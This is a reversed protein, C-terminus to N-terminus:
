VQVRDWRRDLWEIWHEVPVSSTGALHSQCGINATLIREPKPALLADLKRDRLQGALVPQLLSYTGASGCCLQSDAFPLLTAGAAALLSEVVGRIRLAHQLTCPPHFVVRETPIGKFREELLAAKAGVIEAVDRMRESVSAAKAAYATDHRLLRGYDKVMAGCGSANMVLGEAGAELLPWWADINRRIDQLAADPADLHHRIAGCCGAKPAVLLEIGLRDLIRATAANINPALAPQVCGELLIM